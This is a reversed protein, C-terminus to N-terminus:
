GQELLKKAHEVSVESVSGDLLRAVEMVRTEGDVTRLRTITRSKKQEKEVHYHAQAQAAIQPLHTICIVQHTRSLGLMKEGVKRAVSGGIGADIEDFILTPIADSGAFVAKIALMIRSIEGGSAVQKMPKLSEGKNAALMFSIRELGTSALEIDEFNVTFRAGKMELDHLEASVEKELQKAADRRKKSLKVACQRAKEEATNRENRLQEIRADRGEYAALKEAAENRYSLIAGISDGYKRKLDRILTLRQNMEELEAPNNEVEDVRARLDMAVAELLSRVEVLQQPLASLSVDLEALEDISHEIMGLIATLGDDEDNDLATLTKQALEQINEANSLTKIKAKLADDEGVELGAKDIEEVEFRYFEMQRARERDDKDLEQLERDIARLRAVGETVQQALDLAGAYTDLLALQKDHRLLSQHEHQGHLDVLEDGIESLAAVPILRGNAYARSRGEVSVSRSILLEGNELQIDQDSLLQQLHASTEKLRFVADVVAKEEGKRVTDSSARAGLVLGLAGVVISKGAGTEGTLANFGGTFDVEVADILAFNQIRLTELM